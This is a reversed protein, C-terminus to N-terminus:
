LLKAFFLKAYLSNMNWFELCEFHLDLDHCIVNATNGNLSLYGSGIQHCYYHKSSREGKVLYECFIFFAFVNVKVIFILTLSYFFSSTGKSQFHQYCVFSVCVCVCVSVCFVALSLTIVLVFHAFCIKRIFLIQKQNLCETLSQKWRSCVM